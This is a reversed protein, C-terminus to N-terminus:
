CRELPDDGSVWILLPRNEKKALRLGEKLDILWPVKRWKLEEPRPKIAQYRETVDRPLRSLDNRPAQGAVPESHFATASVLVLVTSIIRRNFHLM